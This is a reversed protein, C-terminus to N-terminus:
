SLDTDMYSFSYQHDGTAEITTFGFSVPILFVVVNLM